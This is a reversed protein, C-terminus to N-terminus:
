DVTFPLRSSVWMNTTAYRKFRRSSGKKMATGFGMCDSNSMWWLNSLQTRSNSVSQFVLMNQGARLRFQSSIDHQFTCLQLIFVMHFPLFNSFNSYALFHHWFNYVIKNWTVKGSSFSSGCIGWIKMHTLHNLFQLSLSSNLAIRWGPVIGVKETM